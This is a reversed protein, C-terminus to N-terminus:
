VCWESGITAVVLGAGHANGDDLQRCCQQEHRQGQCGGRLNRRPAVLHGVEDGHVFRHGTQFVFVRRGEISLNAADIKTSPHDELWPDCWREKVLKQALAFTFNGHIRIGETIHKASLLGISLQPLM